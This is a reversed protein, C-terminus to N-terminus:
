ASTALDQFLLNSIDKKTSFLRIHFLPLALPVQPHQVGSLLCSHSAPWADTIDKCKSPLQWLHTVAQGMSLGRSHQHGQLYM